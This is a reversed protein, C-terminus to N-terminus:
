EATSGTLGSFWQQLALLKQFGRDGTLGCTVIIFHSLCLGSALFVMGAAIVAIVQSASFTREQSPQEIQIPIEKSEEELDTNIATFLGTNLEFATNAESVVAEKVKEGQDGAKNMGARFWEKIHKMEGQTAPKSSTLEKFAYFSLGSGQQEDLGYAKGITRRIIQGGSLDGLYRVYSHALLPSPDPSASLEGIRRVYATLAPPTDKLLALHMPHNKWTSEPIDLLFAIDAALPPGRALLTPNYTPELTPHAAHTELAQEFADYVHWLMMLYRIYEQKPLRGSLLALAGPSNEVTEHAKRTGERLLTALPLSYDPSSSM